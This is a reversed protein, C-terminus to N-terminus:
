IMNPEFIFKWQAGHRWKRFEAKFQCKFFVCFMSMKEGKVGFLVKWQALIM